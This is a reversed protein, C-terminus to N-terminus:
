KTNNKKKERKKTTEAVFEEFLRAEEDESKTRQTSLFIDGIIKMAKARNVCTQISAEKDELVLDCVSRLTSQIEFRYGSWAATLVKGMLYKEMEIMEEQTHNEPINNNKFNTKSKDNSNNIKNESHKKLFKKQDQSGQSGIKSSDNIEEQDKQNRNHYDVDEQMKAYEQMTKQADLASTVTKFTDKFVGSKEKVLWWFGGWGFFTQNKLFIKLKSKYIYGITYLIELGFSEMKLAEAEYKIKKKFSNYVDEKMDTETFLSLKEILKKALEKRTEIKKLRCEEEFKELKIKCENEQNNKSKDSSSSIKKHTTTNTENKDQDTIMQNKSYENNMEKYEKNNLKSSQNNGSKEHLSESLEATKTLERLLSLEGIWDKFADGGFIMTFFETPDEFGDVPISENVGYMDYKSRLTEDSLVQYAHGVDQFKAAAQPDDPNKDPHLKIAAKRYAKKIEPFTATPKVELLDYYRTDVVM